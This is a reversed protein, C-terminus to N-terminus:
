LGIKFLYCVFCVILIGILIVTTKGDNSCSMHKQFLVRSKQPLNDRFNEQIEDPIEPCTQTQIGPVNNGMAVQYLHDPSIQFFDNVMSPILGQFEPSGPLPSEPRNNIYAFRDKFCTGPPPTPKPPHRLKEIAEESMYEEPPVFSIGIDVNLKPKKEAEKWTYQHSECEERTKYQPLKCTGVKVFYSSSSKGTLPKRPDTFFPDPYPIKSNELNQEVAISNVAQCSTGIENKLRQVTVRAQQLANSDQYLQDKFRQAYQYRGTHFFKEFGSLHFSDLITTLRNIEDQKQIILTELDAIRQKLNLGYGPESCIYLDTKDANPDSSKTYRDPIPTTFLLDFEALLQKLENDIDSVCKRSASDEDKQTQAPTKKPIKKGDPGITYYLGNGGRPGDMLGPDNNWDGSINNEQNYKQELFQNLKQNKTLAQQDIAQQKQFAKEDAQVQASAGNTIDQQAHDIMSDYKFDFNAWPYVSGKIMPLERFIKNASAISCELDYQGPKSACDYVAKDIKKLTDEVMELNLKNSNYQEETLPARNADVAASM